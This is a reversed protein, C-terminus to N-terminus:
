CTCNQAEYYNEAYFLISYIALLLKEYHDNIRGFIIENKFLKIDRYIEIENM